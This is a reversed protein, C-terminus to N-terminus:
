RRRLLLAALAGGLLIVAATGALSSLPFPEDLWAAQLMKVLAGFPLMSGVEALADPYNDPNGFMGGIAGSGLFVVMGIAIAANPSPAAAAIVLGLAYM